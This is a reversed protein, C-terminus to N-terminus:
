TKLSFDKYMAGFGQAAHGPKGNAITVSDVKIVPVIGKYSGTIFAEDATKLESVKVDREEIILGLKKAHKLVFNRTIGKLIGDKATILKSGKVLFFNSTSGEYIKGDFTYLIEFAKKQKRIKQMSVALMYNTSKVNALPRQYDVSILSVGNEYVAEPLKSFPEANIFFNPHKADPEIGNQVIGGTIVIRVKSYKYGNKKVLKVVEKHLDNKSLPIILGLQKASNYFRKFHEEGHLIQTGAALMSDFVAFSRIISIDLIPLTAKEVPIIKGNLYCFQKEM